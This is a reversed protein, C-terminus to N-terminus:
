AASAGLPRPLTTLGRRRRWNERLAALAGLWYFYDFALSYYVDMRPPNRRELLEVLRIVLDSLGPWFRGIWLMAQRVLRWRLSGEGFTGLKLDWVADPRKSALLVATRGKSINDRALGAFSKPYRQYALAQESFVPRVGADFLRLALEGDEHGYVAFEEDFGGVGELEARRISVNGSYFDRHNIVCGPEALKVIHREFKRAIYGAVPPADEDLRVPVAGLVAIRSGEPHASMHAALFSPVPDMDDDLIVVLDGRAARIGTNCAAARGRNPQWIHTLQYPTSLGELMERTGDESGDVTVVVEYDDHPLTQDALKGLTRRVSDRRCYTPIVVSVKPTQGTM